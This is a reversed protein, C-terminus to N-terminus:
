IFQEYQERNMRDVEIVVFPCDVLARLIFGLESMDEDGQEYYWNIRVNRSIDKMEAVEKLINYIWKTSSTNIYEFGLGIKTKGTFKKRYSVFGNM